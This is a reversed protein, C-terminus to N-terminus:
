DRWFKFAKWGLCFGSALLAAGAVVTKGVTHGTKRAWLAPNVRMARRIRSEDDGGQLELAIHEIASGQHEVIETANM